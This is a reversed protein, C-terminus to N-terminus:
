SAQRASNLRAFTLLCRATSTLRRGHTWCRTATWVRATSQGAAHHTGPPMHSPRGRARRTNRHRTTRM